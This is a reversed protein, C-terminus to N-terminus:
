IPPRSCSATTKVGCQECLERPPRSSCTRESSRLLPAAARGGSRTERSLSGYSTTLGWLMPDKRDGLRGAADPADRNCAFWRAPHAPQSMVRRRNVAAAQSSLSPGSMLRKEVLVALPCAYASVGGHYPPPRRNSDTLPSQLLGAFRHSKPRFSKCFSWHATPISGNISSEPGRGRAVVVVGAQIRRGAPQSRRGPAERAHLPRPGTGARRVYQVATGLAPRAVPRGLHVVM